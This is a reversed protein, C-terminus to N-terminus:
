SLLLDAFFELYTDTIPTIVMGFGPHRSHGPYQDTNWRVIGTIEVKDGDPCEIVVQVTEGAPPLQDCRLFLGEKSLNKVSAEASRGAWALLAPIPKHFRRLRRRDRGRQEDM